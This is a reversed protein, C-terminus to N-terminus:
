NSRPAITWSRCLIFSVCTYQTWLLCQRAEFPPPSVYAISHQSRICQFTKLMSIYWNNATWDFKIDCFSKLLLYTIPSYQSGKEKMPWKVTVLVFQKSNLSNVIFCSASLISQPFVVFVKLLHRNKRCASHMLSIYFTCIWVKCRHIYSSCLTLFIFLVTLHLLQGSFLFFYQLYM